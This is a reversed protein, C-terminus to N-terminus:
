IAVGERLRSRRHGHLLATEQGTGGVEGVPGVGRSRNGPWLLGRRLVDGPPSGSCEGPSVQIVIELGGANYLRVVQKYNPTHEPYTSIDSRAYLVYGSCVGIQVFM